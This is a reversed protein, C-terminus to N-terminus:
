EEPPTAVWYDFTSGHTLIRSAADEPPMATIDLTLTTPLGPDLVAETKVRRRVDDASVGKLRAKREPSVVRRCLEEVDCILRVPIFVSGRDGALAALRAIWERDPPEDILDNTFIFSWQKPSLTEITRVIAERVEAVRDWTGAPLPRLGDVDLLGFIPNNVYHNDVLRVREGRRTMLELLAKAVTLKGTGSFGILLFLKPKGAM